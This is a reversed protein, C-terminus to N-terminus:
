KINISYHKIACSGAAVLQRRQAFTKIGRDFATGVIDRMVAFQGALETMFDDPPRTCHAARHYFTRGCQTFHKPEIGRREAVFPTIGSIMLCQEAAAVCETRALYSDEKSTTRTLLDYNYQICNPKDFNKALLAVLYANVSDNLDLHASSEAEIVLERCTQLYIQYNSM